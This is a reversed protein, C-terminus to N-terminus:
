TPPTTPDTPPVTVETPPTTPETVPPCDANDGSNDGSNDNSSFSDGHSNSDSSGCGCSGNESSFGDHGSNSDSNCTPDTSPPTTDGPPACGTDSWSADGLGDFHATNGDKDLYDFAPIIDHRGAHVHTPHAGSFISAVDVTIINYGHKTQGLGSVAHCITVKHNGNSDPKSAHAVGGLAISGLALTSGAAVALLGIRKRITTTATM